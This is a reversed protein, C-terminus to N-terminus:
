KSYNQRMELFSVRSLAIALGSAAEVTKKLTFRERNGGRLVFLHKARFTSAAHQRRTCSFRQVIRFETATKIGNKM